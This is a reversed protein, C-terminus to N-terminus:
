RGGVISKFMLSIPIIFLCFASIILFITTLDYIWYSTIPLDGIIKLSMNYFTEIM